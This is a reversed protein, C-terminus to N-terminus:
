KEILLEETTSVLSLPGERNWLWYVVCINCQLYMDYKNRANHMGAHCVICICIPFPKSCLIYVCTRGRTRICRHLKSCYWQMIVPVFESAVVDSTSWWLRPGITGWRLRMWIKAAKRGVVPVSRVMRNFGHVLHEEYLSGLWLKANIKWEEM